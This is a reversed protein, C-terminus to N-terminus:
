IIVTLGSLELLGIIEDKRRCGCIKLSKSYHRECEKDGSYRIHRRDECHYTSLLFACANIFLYHVPDNIISVIVCLGGPIATIQRCNIIDWCCRHSLWPRSLRKAVHRPPHLLNTTALDWGFNFNHPSALEKKQCCSVLQLRQLQNQPQSPFNPASREYTSSFDTLSTNLPFSM